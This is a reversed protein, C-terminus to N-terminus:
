SLGEACEAEACTSVEYVVGLDHQGDYGPTAAYVAGPRSQDLGHMQSHADACGGSPDEPNEDWSLDVESVLYAWAEPCTEFVAPETDPLCGPRTITAHFHITSM